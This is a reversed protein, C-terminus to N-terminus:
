RLQERTKDAGIITCMSYTGFPRFQEVGNWITLGKRVRKGNMDIFVSKATRDLITFSFICDHDCLSRTAYTQGVEFTTTM